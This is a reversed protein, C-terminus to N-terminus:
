YTFGGVLAVTLLQIPVPLLLVLYHVAGQAISAASVAVAVTMGAGALRALLESGFAQKIYAVAGSAQPHRGAVWRLM